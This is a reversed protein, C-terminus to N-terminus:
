ISGAPSVVNLNCICIVFGLPSDSGETLCKLIRRGMLISYYLYCLRELLQLVSIQTAGHLTM